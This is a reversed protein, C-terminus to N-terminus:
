DTGRIKKLDKEQRLKLRYVVRVMLPCVKAPLLYPSCGLHAVEMKEKFFRIYDDKLNWIDGQFVKTNPFNRRILEARSPILECAALVPIGLGWEIGVDGIGAGSFLSGSVKKKGKITM